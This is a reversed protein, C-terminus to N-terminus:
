YWLALIGYCQIINEKFIYEISEKISNVNGDISPARDERSCARYSINWVRSLTIYM